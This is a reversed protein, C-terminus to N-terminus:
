NVRKVKFIPVSAKFKELTPNPHPDRWATHLMENKPARMLVHINIGETVAFPADTLVGGIRKFGDFRNAKYNWRNEYLGGDLGKILVTCHELGLSVASPRSACKGGLSEWGNSWQNNSFSKHYLGKDAGIGFVNIIGDAQTVASPPQIFSGGLSRWSSWGNNWSIHWIANDEGIGFIDLKGPAQSVVNVMGLKLKGGLSEWGGWKQQNLGADWWNHWLAGDGGIGFIDVRGPAWCIAAPPGNLYGGLNHWGEWKGAAENWWKQYVAGDAGRGYVDLHNKGWSVTHLPFAASLIGPAMTFNGGLKIWDSWIGRDSYQYYAAGDAGVAFADIRGSMMSCAVPETILQGSRDEFDNAGYLKQVGVVDSPSLVGGNNWKPNCYNMVSFDDYPTVYWDGDSGQSQEENCAQPADNRNQEHAFGLAHGFEHIAVYKICAERDNQCDKSWNKFTFNLVMGDEEGDLFSGLDDVHPGSDEILIRIGRSDRRCAGWDTFRFASFKEWTDAIAQRVWQRETVDAPTPNEWCVACTKNPWIGKTAVNLGSTTSGVPQAVSSTTFALLFLVVLGSKFFSVLKM